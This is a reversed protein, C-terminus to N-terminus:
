ASEVAERLLALLAPRDLDVSERIKVHRMLKGTGELRGQPDRLSAGRDFGITVHDKTRHLYCFKGGAATSYCPRSWKYEEAIGPAVSLVMARLEALAPKQHEPASDFWEEIESAM